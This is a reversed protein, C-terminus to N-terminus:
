DALAAKLMEALRYGALAARKRAMTTAETEYGEPLKPATSPPHSDTDIVWDIQKGKFNYVNAKALEFSENAWKAPDKVKREAEAVEVKMSIDRATGKITDYKEDFGLTSDWVSHLRTPGGGAQRTVYLFNGGQDGNPLDSDCRAAAHLPQHLDGVLHLLWCLRIARTAKSKDTTAPTKVIKECLPIVSLIDGHNQGPAKFKAEIEESTEDDEAVIYPINVYHWTGRHFKDRHPRGRVFDPWTAARMVILEDTVIEPSTKPMGATLYEKYHPHYMLIHLMKKQAPVDLTEYAILAVVKHGTDNWANAINVSSVVLTVSILMSSIKYRV